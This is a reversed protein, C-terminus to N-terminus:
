KGNEQREAKYKRIQEALDKVLPRSFQEKGKSEVYRYIPNFGMDRWTQVQEQFSVVGDGDRDSLGLLESYLKDYAEERKKRAYSEPVLSYSSGDGLNDWFWLWDSPDYSECSVVYILDVKGDGDIDEVYAPGRIAEGLRIRKPPESKPTDEKEACGFNPLCSLVGLGVSALISLLNKRVM